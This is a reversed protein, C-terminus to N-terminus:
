RSYSKTLIDNAKEKLDGEEKVIGLFYKISVAGTIKDFKPICENNQCGSQDYLIITPVKTINFKAFLKPDIDIGIKRNEINNIFEITEKMSGDIMGRIVARANYEKIEIQYEQWLNYPMSSSLFIVLGNDIKDIKPYKRSFTPFLESRMSTAKRIIDNTLDIESFEETVKDINDKQRQNQNKRYNEQQLQNSINKIDNRDLNIDENNILNRQDILDRSGFKSKYIGSDEKQYDTINAYLNSSIIISIIALILNKKVNM